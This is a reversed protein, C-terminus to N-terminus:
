DAYEYHDGVRKIPRGSKTKPLPAEEKPAFTFPSKGKMFGTDNVTFGQTSGTRTVHALANQARAQALTGTGIAYDAAKELAAPNMSEPTPYGSGIQAREADTAGSSEVATKLNAAYKELLQRYTANPDTQKLVTLQNAFEQTYKGTRTEAALEKVKNGLDIVTQSKQGAATVNAFNQNDISGAGGAATTAAAVAAQYGPTQTPGLGQPTNGSIQGIGMPSMPNTQRSGLGGMPTTFTETAPASLASDQAGVAVAATRAGQRITQSAQADTMGETHPMSLLFDDIASQYGRDPSVARAQSIAHKLDGESANPNAAVAGLYNGITARQENSLGLLAKRNDVAANFNHTMQGIYPQGYVPAVKMADEQYKEVNASGDANLYAPNAAANKTFTALAQLESNQQQKQQVEAQQGALAQRQQQIGLIGSLTNIGTMPNPPIITNGVPTMDPM